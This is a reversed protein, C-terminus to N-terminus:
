RCDRQAYRAPNLGNLYVLLASWLGAGVLLVLSLAVEAIVLAQRSWRRRGGVLSRGAEILTRRIDLRATESRRRWASCFATLAAVGLMALLVRADLEIPYWLQSKEAGLRKLWDLALGGVGV